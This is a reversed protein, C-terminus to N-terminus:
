PCPLAAKSRGLNGGQARTQRRCRLCLGSLLPHSLTPSNGWGLWAACTLTGRRRLRLFEVHDASAWSDQPCVWSRKHTRGKPSCLPRCSFLLLPFHNSPASNPKSNLAGNSSEPELCFEAPPRHHRPSPPHFGCSGLCPQPNAPLLGHPWM